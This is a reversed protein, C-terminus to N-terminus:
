AARRAAPPGTAAVTGDPYTVTLRRDAGLAITCGGEHVQHHHRSCLPLLNQLDTCGNNRWWVIHHPECYKSRVVCGPFACTAYMARLARRQNRSALRIQRGQDVVVGASNLVVPIIAASCAMRRYSEVPLDAGSGNDVISHEHLGHMLTDLDIVISVEFRQDNDDVHAAFSDDDGAGDDGVGADGVGDDGAAGAVEADGVDADGVDADGSGTDRARSRRRATLRLLALARLHDQKGEGEPCTDPVGQRFMSDVANEIRGQLILGSEPDLEARMCWMGTDPDWWWRLRINRRQQELREEGSRRDLRDLEARLVKAFREPTSRAAIAALRPGQSALLERQEPTLDKMARALADVHGVSVDGETLADELEPVAGLAQSRKVARGAEGRSNKTSAAIDAEPCVAANEEAIERLRRVVKAQRADVWSRVKTLSQLADNAGERDLSSPDLDGLARVLEVVSIRDSV